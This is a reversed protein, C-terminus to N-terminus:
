AVVFAIALLLITVCSRFHIIVYCDEIMVRLIRVVSMIIYMHITTYNSYVIMGKFLLAPPLDEYSTLGFKIRLM